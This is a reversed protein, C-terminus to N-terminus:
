EVSKILNYVSTFIGFLLGILQGWPSAILAYDEIKMGIWLCFLMTITMQIGLGSYALWNKQNKSM